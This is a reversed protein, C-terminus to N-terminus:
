ERAAFIGGEATNMGMLIPVASEEKFDRLPYKCLFSEKKDCNEVVPMFTM